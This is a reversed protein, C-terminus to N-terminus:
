RNQNYTNRLRRGGTNRGFQRVTIEPQGNSTDPSVIVGHSVPQPQANVSDRMELVNVREGIIISYLIVVNGVCLVFLFISINILPIALAVIWPMAFNVAFVCSFLLVALVWIVLLSKAWGLYIKILYAKRKRIGYLLTSSFIANLISLTIWVISTVNATSTLMKNVLWDIKLTETVAISVLNM